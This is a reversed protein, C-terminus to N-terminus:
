FYREAKIMRDKGQMDKKLEISQYGKALLLDAVENGFAENIEFFVKGRNNLHQLGFKSIAEYFQLPNGNPVFLALHPEYKLVNNNMSLMEQMTIYPPNSIIYDFSGFTQWQHTNLIDNASFFIETQQEKANRTAIQLANDSVDTASVNASSLNKKLAIAICGSGTGVDLIECKANPMERRINEIVWEALEETEPRPILVNEDVYLKMGYWYAEHLVYQVPKNAVLELIIDHFKDHQTQTFIDQKHVIRDTNNWGTLYEIVLAAINNAERREYISQLTVTLQRHADHVTM